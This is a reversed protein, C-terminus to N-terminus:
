YLHMKSNEMGKNWSETFMYNIYISDWSYTFAYRLLSHRKGISWSITMAFNSKFSIKM